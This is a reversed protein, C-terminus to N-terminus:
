REGVGWVYGGYYRGYNGMWAKRAGTVAENLNEMLEEAKAREEESKAPFFKARIVNIWFTSEVTVMLGLGAYVTYRVVPSANQIERLLNFSPLSPNPQPPPKSPETSYRVVSSRPQISRIQLRLLVRRSALLRFPQSKSPLWQPSMNSQLRNKKIVPNTCSSEIACHSTSIFLDLRLRHGEDYVRGEWV